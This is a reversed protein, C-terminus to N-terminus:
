QNDNAGTQAQATVAYTALLIVAWMLASLTFRLKEKM